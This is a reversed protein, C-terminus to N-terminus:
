SGGRPEAVTGRRGPGEGTGDARGAREGRAGRAGPRERQPRGAQRRLVYLLTSLDSPKVGSVRSAQGLSRPRVQCLRQRAEASLGDVSGYDFDPPILMGEMKKFQGIRENQRKVYGSYRCEVAAAHRVSPDFAAVEPVRAALEEVAVEGSRLLHALTRGGERREELLAVLRGFEERRRCTRLRDEEDLLGVRSGYDSLRLDANDHRLNLRYEASSTFLRYPETVGKTILDDILVGIYAESRDLVLPPEGRLACVANIGAMLGQAAAEEYGSTGNIQGALYLCPVRKTELTATLEVPPVFDYEVAYGPKMIDVHELGPITRLFARQVDEPLSTSVGNLYVEETDLGEPEVFVQHRERDAFRVVKDEISPCYRPGIGTIQGTYLPARDLNDRIIRHTEATTYTVHCPVQPTTLRATAHSFPVPRPDGHQVELRSFDISGRNVRAPTGTKLRSLPFGLELLSASLGEASLEGIRGGAAQYTGIHILGRLFTGTTVVAARAAYRNGRVTAVGRVGGDGTLIREAIDQKLEVGQAREVRRKMERQYARKDAQARLAWVAPGKATNLMRFQIGTRDIVRGMAGGLADIERVLQGKALGGIAPNCSMQAVTDLNISLLLTRAGMRGAALAAECGAHGAGIVVVDYSDDFSM